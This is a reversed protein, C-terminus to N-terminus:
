VSAWFRELVVGVREPDELMWSHGLDDFTEKAAGLEFGVDEAMPEDGFPDAAAHIVLGPPVARAPIEIRWDARVNPKASRYLCLICESMTRDHAASMACAAESPIGLQELRATGHRVGEPGDVQSRAVAEEGLGPTQCTRATRHWVYDPHFLNALDVTWSRIPMQRSTVLRLCLLGGFDHGVLDIPGNIAELETMLWGAYDDKSAKFRRPLPAGFGPLAVAVGEGGVFERLADWVVWTEPVGHVFVATV